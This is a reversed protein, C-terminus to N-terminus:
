ESELFTSGISLHFTVVGDEDASALFRLRGVRRDVEAPPTSGAAARASAALDRLVLSLEGADPVHYDDGHSSTHGGWRVWGFAEYVKAAVMATAGINAAERSGHHLRSWRAETVTM